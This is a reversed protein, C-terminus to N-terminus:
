IIYMDGSITHVLNGDMTKKISTLYFMNTKDESMSLLVAKSKCTHSLDPMNIWFMVGREWHKIPTRATTRRNNFIIM